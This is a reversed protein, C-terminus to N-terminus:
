RKHVDDLEADKQATIRRVEAECRARAEAAETKARRRGEEAEVMREAFEQRVVDAVAAREERYQSLTQNLTEIESVKQKLKVRLQENTGEVDTLKAKIDNYRCLAQMESQELDKVEAECKERIRKIRNQASKELEERGVTADAELRTIVMEIERDRDRRVREKLEREKSLLATEQRKLFSEEWSAKEVAVRDRLAQMESTHRRDQEDRLREFEEQAVRVMRGDAEAQRKRQQEVEARDRAAQAELRRKSAEAEAQLRRREEQLCEEEERVQKEYRQRALEREHACAQEKETALQSRLDETVKVYRQAAKEDSQLLEAEHLQKLKSLESKHRAILRQIEPELGKVTMEKIRKTKDEIWKERRLKESAVATDKFKKLETNYEKVLEECKTTLEKKDDILQDIFSLHRRITTEYQEKQDHLQRKMERDAEKVHRVTLERQQS